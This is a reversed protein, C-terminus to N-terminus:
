SPEKPELDDDAIFRFAFVITFLTAVMWPAAVGYLIWAPLGLTIKVQEPDGYGALGCYGVTWILSLVWVILVIVAERRSNTYVPDPQEGNM